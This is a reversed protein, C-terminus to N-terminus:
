VAILRASIAVLYRGITILGGAILVQHGATIRSLVVDALADALAGRCHRVASGALAILAIRRSQLGGLLTVRDCVSAIDRRQRSVLYSGCAIQRDRLGAEGVLAGVTLAGQRAGVDDQTGGLLAAAGRPLAGFGGLLSRFCGLVAQHCFAVAFLCRALPPARQDVALHEDELQLALAVQSVLREAM